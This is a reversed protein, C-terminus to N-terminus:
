RKSMRDFKEECKAIHKEAQKKGAETFGHANEGAFEEASAIVTLCNTQYTKISKKKDVPM